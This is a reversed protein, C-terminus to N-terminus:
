SVDFLRTALSTFRAFGSEISTEDALKSQRLIEIRKQENSPIPVSLTGLLARDENTLAYNEHPYSAM